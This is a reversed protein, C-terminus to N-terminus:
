VLKWQRRNLIQITRQIEEDRGVINDLKGDAAKQTLSICYNELFKRKSHREGKGNGSRDEHSSAGSEGNANNSPPPNNNQGGFLRNLFPFTATQGEDEDNENSDPNNNFLSEVGEAGGFASMMESSLGDLDEDSLGMKQIMDDVPKIGLERACKLCLGENKTEGNEIKTVFVVAVNKHCRSCLTPQM